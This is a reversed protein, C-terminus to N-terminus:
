FEFSFLVEFLLRSAHLLYDRNLITIHSIIKAKIRSPCVLIISKNIICYLLNPSGFLGRRRITMM